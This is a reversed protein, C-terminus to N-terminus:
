PRKKRDEKPQGESTDSHLIDATDGQPLVQKGSVDLYIPLIPKNNRRLTMVLTHTHTLCLFMEEEEKEKKAQKLFTCLEDMGELIGLFLM